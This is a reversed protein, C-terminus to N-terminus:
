SAVPRSDSLYVDSGRTSSDDFTCLAGFLSTPDYALAHGAAATEPFRSATESEAATPALSGRPMFSENHGRVTQDVGPGLTATSGKWTHKAIPIRGEPIGIAIASFCPRFRLKEM